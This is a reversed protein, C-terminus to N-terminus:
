SAHTARARLGVDLRHMLAGLRGHGPARAPLRRAVARALLPACALARDIEAEGRVDGLALAAYAAAGVIHNIQHATAIPHTYAVGAAASAARAAAAAAPDTVTRAAAHAAWAVQRLVADRPGGEGFARAAAIAEGPRPDDPAAAAFVPLARTACDAAWLAIPRLEDLTFLPPTPPM